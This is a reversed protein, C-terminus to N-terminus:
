NGIVKARSCSAWRRAPVDAAPARAACHLAPGRRWRRPRRCRHSPRDRRPRPSCTQPATAWPLARGNRLGIPARMRPRSWDSRAPAVRLARRPERHPRHARGGILLYRGGASRAAPQLAAGSRHCMLCEAWCRVRSSLGARSGHRPRWTRRTGVPGLAPATQHASTTGRRDERPSRHGGRRVRLRRTRRRRQEGRRAERRRGRLLTARRQVRHRRM